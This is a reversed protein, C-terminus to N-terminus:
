EHTRVGRTALCTEFQKTPLGGGVLGVCPFALACSTPRPPTIAFNSSSIAFTFHIAISSVRALRIRCLTIPFPDMPQSASVFFTMGFEPLTVPDDAAGS